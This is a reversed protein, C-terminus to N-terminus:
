SKKFGADVLATDIDTFPIGTQTTNRCAATGALINKRKARQYMRAATKSGHSM